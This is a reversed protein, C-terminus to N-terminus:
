SYIVDTDKYEANLERMHARIDEVTWFYNLYKISLLMSIAIFISSFLVLLKRGFNAQPLRNFFFPVLILFAMGSFFYIGRQLLLFGLDPIGVFDSSILPMVIAFIDLIGYIKNVAYFLIFALYGIVIVITVAQNRVIRMILLTLGLVFLMSPISIILPYILYPLSAFNPEGFITHIVGASILLVLNLLVFLILIGIARGILFVFNSMSRVYVVEMSNLKHDRKVLDTALFAIMVSQVINLLYVNTYPVFSPIGRLIWPITSVETYFIINYFILIGLSSLAFLRFFWGRLQTIIENRTNAWFLNLYNSIM